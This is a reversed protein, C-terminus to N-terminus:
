LGVSTEEYRWNEHYSFDTVFKTSTTKQHANNTMESNHKM